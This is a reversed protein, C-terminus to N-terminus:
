KTAIKIWSDPLIDTKRGNAFWKDPSIVIKNSNENLWAGWWSFTSNAIINHKCNKMLELDIYAKNGTVIDFPVDLKLNEQVWPIDDSFLFFHPAELSDSMYKVARNYYDLNCIGYIDQLKLYDGRRVHLSVSNTDKIKQLIQVNTAPIKEKLRFDQLIQERINQFYQPAQFYGYYYLNGSLSLLEPNYINNPKEKIKKCFIKQWLTSTPLTLQFNPLSLSREQTSKFWSLDFLIKENKNKKLAQAFAYQFMQNGLGGYIKVINVM